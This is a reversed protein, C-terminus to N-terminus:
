LKPMRHLKESDLYTQLIPSMAPVGHGVPDNLKISEDLIIKSRLYSEWVSMGKALYVTILSSLICGGGHGRITVRPVEVRLFKNKSFLTDICPGNLHGGKILVSDAGMAHLRRCADMIDDQSNIKIGTLDEAEPINPTILTAIPIVFKCVSEILEDTKLSDGVGAIFVPDVVIPFSETRLRKSVQEAVDASYLMGLKAGSVHSDELIADLQSIVVSAPIPFIGSVKQSNQSTVATISVAPHAGLSSMAKIDAEIGAGGLSDSGAVTLTVLM